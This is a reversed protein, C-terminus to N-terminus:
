FNEILEPIDKGKCKISYYNNIGRITLDSKDKIKKDTTTIELLNGNETKMYYRHVEKAM